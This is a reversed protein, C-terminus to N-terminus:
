FFCFLIPFPPMLIHCQQHSVLEINLLPDLLHDSIPLLPVSAQQVIQLHQFVPIRDSSRLPICPKVPHFPWCCRDRLSCTLSRDSSLLFLAPRTQIIYFLILYPFGSILISSSRKLKYRAKKDTTKTIDNSLAEKSRKCYLYCARLIFGADEPYFGIYKKIACRRNECFPGKQSFFLLCWKQRM